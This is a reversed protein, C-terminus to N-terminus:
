PQRPNKPIGSWKYDTNQWREKGTGEVRVVAAYAVTFPKDAGGETAWKDSVEQFFQGAGGSMVFGGKPFRLEWLIETIPRVDEKPVPYGALYCRAVVREMGRQTVYITIGPERNSIVQPYNTLVKDGFEQLGEAIKKSVIQSVEAKALLESRSSPDPHNELIPRTYAEIQDVVEASSNCLTVDIIAERRIM